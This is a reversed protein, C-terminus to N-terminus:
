LGLNAAHTVNFVAKPRLRVLRSVYSRWLALLQNLRRAPSPPQCAHRLLRERKIKTLADNSSYRSAHRTPLRRSAKANRGRACDASTLGFLFAATGGSMFAAAITPRCADVCGLLKRRLENLVAMAEAYSRQPAEEVTVADRSFFVACALSCSRGSIKFCRSSQNSPWGSRSGSFSTKM